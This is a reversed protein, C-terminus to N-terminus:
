ADDFVLLLVIVIMSKIMTEILILFKLFAVQLKRLFYNNWNKWRGTTSNRFIFGSSSVLVSLRSYLYRKRLEKSFVGKLPSIWKLMMKPVKWLFFISKKKDRFFKIRVNKLTKKTSIEQKWKLFFKLSVSTVFLM